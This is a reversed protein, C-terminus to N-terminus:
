TGAETLEFTRMRQWLITGALLVGVVENAILALAAGLPGLIPLLWVTIGVVVLLQICNIWWYVRVMGFSYGIVGIPCILIALAYRFSLFQGLRTSEAYEQGFFAPALFPVLIAYVTGLAAVMGSLRFTQVLLTKTQKISLHASARPWLAANIATLVVALPLAFRSAAFYAGIQKEDLFVGMLWVDARLIIMVVITSVLNFAAFTMPDSDAHAGAIDPTRIPTKRLLRRISLDAFTIRRRPFLAARPVLLLFIMASVASGVLTAILVIEVSWLNFWAVVGIGAFVILTQCVAVTANKQFQKLSQFYVTPVSALATFIGGLLGIRLLPTLADMRWITHAIVPALLIFLLTVATALAVRLRFAWRLVAFQEEQDALSVARSAYRIATQGIGLDSLSSAIGAVSMVLAYQGLPGKGLGRAILISTVFGTVLAVGQPVMLIVVDRIGKQSEILTARLWTLTSKLITTSLLLKKSFVDFFICFHAGIFL